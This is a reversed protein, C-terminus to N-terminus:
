ITNSDALQREVADYVADVTISRMCDHYIANRCSSEDCNQRCAMKNEVVVHGPGWPGTEVSKSPGFIAVTRTGAAAALHMPASDNCIMLRAGAIVGSLQRIGTMGSLVVPRYKMFSVIERALDKESVEGLLVLNWGYRERIRDYLEACREIPWRKLLLRGGPHVCIYPSEIGYDKLLDAIKERERDTLYVGWEVADGRWGLFRILDLHYEVKHKLMAYPVVHSLAFRGGGVAYSLKARSVAPFALFLIDRIDARAEIVWDFSHRRLRDIFRFYGKIPRKYFWFPEYVLVDDVYPNNFLIEKGAESTLFTISVGPFKKKLPELIPLTMIVDGIYATRIVLIRKINSPWHIKDTCTSRLCSFTLANGAMDAM